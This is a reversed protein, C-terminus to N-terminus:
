TISKDFFLKKDHITVKSTLSQEEANYEVVDDILIMPHKHPLIKEMDFNPM